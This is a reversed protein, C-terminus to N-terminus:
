IINPLINLKESLYKRNKQTLEGDNWDRVHDHELHLYLLDPCTLLLRDAGLYRHIIDQDEGGWGVYNEDWGDIQKLLERQFFPLVGFRHRNLLQDRMFGEHFNERAVSATKQIEQLQDVRFSRFSTVLRFGTILMKTSERALDLHRDLSLNYPILDVDFPTIFDGKALKLGENLLASKNFPGEGEIHKYVINNPLESDLSPKLSSEIIILEIKLSSREVLAPFWNLLSELHQSRNRYAVLLSLDAM